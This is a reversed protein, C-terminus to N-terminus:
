RAPSEARDSRVPGAQIRLYGDQDLRVFARRVPDDVYIPDGVVAPDYGQQALRRAKPKFTPTTEIEDRIRLLLPRAYDPLREVLYRRFAVLDFGPGVVIAAM